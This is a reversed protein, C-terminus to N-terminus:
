KTENQEKNNNLLIEDYLTITKLNSIQESTLGKETLEDRTYAKVISYDENQKLIKVAMDNTYGNRSRTVYTIGNIEKISSNPVRFGSASWWVIEFSIKRYSLLSEVENEIQITVTRSGDDEEIINKIQANIKTDAHIKIKIQENEKINKVENSNSNFVIYCNYNNVIKAINDSSAITQNAKVKLTDLFDKNLKSFDNAVLVNELGDVRYSVVGSVPANIYNGEEELQKEYNVKEDILEKIYSGSPSLEGAMKAKKTIYSNISKKAERIKQIANANYVNNIEEEIQSELLKKDGFLINKTNVMVEQIKNNLDAIKEQLEKENQVSYRYISSGKSVKEGEEKLKIINNGEKTSEVITEERIIYGNVVEEQSVEGNSIIFTKTPNKILKYTAFALYGIIITLCLLMIVVKFKNLKKHKGKDNNM